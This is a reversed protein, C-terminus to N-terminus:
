GKPILKIPANAAHPKPAEPSPTLKVPPAAPASKPPEDKPTLKIPENAAHPKPAEPSPELKVPGAPRPGSEVPKFSPASVPEPKAPTMRLPAAAATPQAAENKSSAPASPVPEKKPVAKFPAPTAKPTTASAVAPSSPSSPSPSPQGAKERAAAAAQRAVARKERAAGLALRIINKLAVARTLGIRGYKRGQDLAAAAGSRLLVRAASARSKVNEAVASSFLPAKALPESAAVPETSEPPEDPATLGWHQAMALSLAELRALRRRSEDNMREMQRHATEMRQQRAQWALIREERFQRWEAGLSETRERALETWASLWDEYGPLRRSIRVAALLYLPIAGILGCFFGLRYLGPYRGFSAVVAVGFANLARIASTYFGPEWAPWARGLLSGMTQPLALLHRGLTLPLAFLAGGTKAAAEPGLWQSVVSWLGLCAAATLAMRLPRLFHTSSHRAWVLKRGFGQLFFLLACAGVAISLVIAPKINAWADSSRALAPMSPQSLTWAGIADLIVAIGAMWLWLGCLGFFVRVLWAIGSGVSLPFGRGRATGYADCASLFLAALVVAPGYALDFTVLILGSVFLLFFFVAKKINLNYAQGLGPLLSLLAPVLCLAQPKQAADELPDPPFAVSERRPTPRASSVPPSAPEPRPPAPPPEPQAAPPTSAPEAATAPEAARPPSSPKASPSGLHTKRSVVISKKPPAHPTKAKQPPAVSEQWFDDAPTEPETGPTAVPDPIRMPAHCHPCEGEEGRMEGPAKIKQQCQPCHFVINAM